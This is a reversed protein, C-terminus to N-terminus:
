THTEARAHQYTHTRIHTSALLQTGKYGQVCEKHVNIKGDEEKFVSWSDELIREKCHECEPATCKRRQLSYQEHCESHCQGEEM